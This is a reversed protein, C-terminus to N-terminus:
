ACVLSSFLGIFIQAREQSCFRMIGWYAVVIVLFFRNSQMEPRAAYYFELLTMASKFVIVLYQM